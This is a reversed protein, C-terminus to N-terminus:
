KIESLYMLIQEGLGNDQIRLTHSITTRDMKKTSNMFEQDEWKGNVPLSIENMAPEPMKGYDTSINEQVKYFADAFENLSNFYDQFAIVIMFLSDDKFFFNAQVPRGYLTTERALRNEDLQQCNDFLQKVEQQTMYWSAGFMGIPQGSSQLENRIDDCVKEKIKEKSVCGTGVASFLIIILVIYITFGTFSKLIM